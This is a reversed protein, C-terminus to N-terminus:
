AVENLSSAAMSNDYSYEGFYKEEATKRAAVAQEFTDFSGLYIAEKNVHIRSSWKGWKKDWTVGKVGDPNRRNNRANQMNQSQSVCRLNNRRNDATDHNIHDVVMDEPANMILRHMFLNKRNATSIVYGESNIRWCCDKIKEYDEVDLSFPEGKATYGIVLNDRFEYHNRGKCMKRLTNTRM